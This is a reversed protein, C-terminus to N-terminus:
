VQLVLLNEVTRRIFGSSKSGCFYMSWASCYILVIEQQEFHAQVCLWREHDTRAQGTLHWTRSTCPHRITNFTHLMQYATLILMSLLFFCQVQYRLNQVHVLMPASTGYRIRCWQVYGAFVWMWPRGIAKCRVYSSSQWRSGVSTNWTLHCCHTPTITLPGGVWWNDCAAGSGCLCGCGSVSRSRSSITTLICQLFNPPTTAHKDSEM